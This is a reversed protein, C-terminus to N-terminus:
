NPSYEKADLLRVDMKRTGKPLETEFTVKQQTGNLLIIDYTKDRQTFVYGSSNIFDVQIQLYSYNYMKSLNTLTIYIKDRKFTKQSVRYELVIDKRWDSKKKKNIKNPPTVIMQPENNQENTQTNQAAQISDRIYQGYEELAVQQNYDTNSSCSCIFCTLFFLLFYKM